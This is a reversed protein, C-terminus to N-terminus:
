CVAPVLNGDPGLIFAPDWACPDSVFYMIGTAWSSGDILLGAPQLDYPKLSATTGPLVAIRVETWNPTLLTVFETPVSCQNSVDFGLMKPLSQFGPSHPAGYVTVTYAGGPPGAAGCDMSTSWLTRGLASAQPAVLVMVLAVIGFFPITKRM